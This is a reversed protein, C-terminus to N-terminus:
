GFIGRKATTVGQFFIESFYRTADFKLMNILSATDWEWKPPNPQPFRAPRGNVSTSDPQVRSGPRAAGRRAMGRCVRFSAFLLWIPARFPFGASTVPGPPPQRWTFILQSCPRTSRLRIPAVVGCARTRRLTMSGTSLPRAAVRRAEAWARGFRVKSCAAGLRTACRQEIGESQDSIESTSTRLRKQEVRIYDETSIRPNVILM